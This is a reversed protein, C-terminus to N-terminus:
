WAKLKQPTPIKSFLGFVALALSDAQDPSCGILDHMTLEDSDPNKKSKPPLKLRGEPDYILPIPALQRRLEILKSPIGFSRTPKGDADPLPDLLDFRLRGYMESRRNFYTYRVEKDEYKESKSHHKKIIADNASEGFGVTRVPYLSQGRNDRIDRLRDAHQKGGGGRDFLWNRPEVRYQDGLHITIGPIDNTDATKIAHQHIIGWRDIITWVSESVGEGVDIGMTRTLKKQARLKKLEPTDLERAYEEALNLWEPPYLLNEAGEYFEADLSVSQRVKDWTKRQYSYEEWGKMGPILMRGSPKKGAKIEELALQINPSDTAKIQIIKRHYGDGNDRPIDGGKDETGPVGKVAHKFYNNCEWTNGFIFQRKAWTSAMTFIGQMVGSSEDSVFMSRPIPFEEPYLPNCHHGQMAALSQQSAVMGKMYTNDCLRGDLTYKLVERQKIDLCGGKERDIPFKCTNVFRRFEGWLVDIHDDKASTTVIKCPTRSLFFWLIIFGAIFDKGMMNAAPVVTITNQEVSKIIDIQKSSLRVDPWGWALLKCPNTILEAESLTIM